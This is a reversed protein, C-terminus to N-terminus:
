RRGAILLSSAVISGITVIGAFVLGVIRAVLLGRSSRAIVVRNQRYDRTPDLGVVRLTHRGANASFSFLELRVTGDLSTASSRVYVPSVALERKDQESTIAVRMDGLGREGLKGQMLVAYRDTRPLVLSQEPLVPLSAVVAERTLRVLGIALKVIAIVGVVILPVTVVLWLRSFTM